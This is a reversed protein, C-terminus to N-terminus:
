NEILKMLKELEDSTTLEKKINSIYYNRKNSDEIVEKINKFFDEINNALIGKKNKLQEEFEPINSAIIMKELAKAEAVTIGYGEFRSPQVYIDAMKIWKYPNSDSGVLIFHNELKYKCILNELKKRECGEGIIYWNLDIGNELLKKCIGVAIDFGKQEVLRGVSVINTCNKNISYKEIKEKSLEFILKKSIMNKIVVLKNSYEPFIKELVNKCNESVTVINKYYKFYKKDLNYNYPYKSYDNHIFCIKNKSKVKDVNFYVTKRELFAISVDYEKEIPDIIKSIFRWGIYLNNKSNRSFMAGILWGISYIANKFNRKSIFNIVSKKRDSAFIKYSNDEKLVNVEKPIMNYFEGTHELLYLDVDYKNYDLMNLLTILSKEAGGIKLSDMVFLIKKKM